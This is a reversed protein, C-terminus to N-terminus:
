GPPDLPREVGARTGQVIAGAIDRARRMLQQLAAADAAALECVVAPMRTERLASYTRPVPGATEGMVARLEEDIRQAVCMGAESRFVDTGFYACQTEGDTTRVALFLDAGWDNAEKALVGDQQDSTDHIVNAGGRELGGYVAGGLDGLGSQAVLYIKRGTLRHSDRRLSERERVSAVSGGALADVQDLQQLTSPGFIGDARLGTERQFTAIARQTDPGLIGDVRGAHFGVADLRRQLQAVDDGRLMPQRLYLMRDGLRFGAEVLAGWTQPGCLGDVRLKRAEQFARVSVETARGFHGDVVCPIGTASLREQLERVADGSDGCRLLAPPDNL